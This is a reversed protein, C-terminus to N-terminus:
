EHLGRSRAVAEARRRIFHNSVTDGLRRFPHRVPPAFSEVAVVEHVLRYQRGGATPSQATGHTPTSTTGTARDPPPSTGVAPRPPTPDIRSTSSVVGTPRDTAGLDPGEAQRDTRRVGQRYRAHGTRHRAGALRDGLRRGGLRNRWGRRERARQGLVRGVAAAALATGWAGYRLGRDITLLHAGQSGTPGQWPAGGGGLRANTLNDTIRGTGAETGSLLRRRAMAMVLVVLIVLLFREVLSVDATAALLRTLGLMTLSLLLSMGIAVVIMQVLTTLWLWALRRGGAPLVAVLGVFPALAFLLLAVFKGIIVTLGVALLVFSVVFSAGMSLLAGMFRHGGPTENFDAEAHCGADRMVERPFDDDGHPGFALVVNRAQECRGDLPGGWNLHDYTEEVFVGHVQAQLAEVEPAVAGDAPDRGQGIAFLAEEAEDILEWTTAMYDARNLMLASSLGLLVISVVLEGGAMALKGRLAVFGVWAFLGLWAIEMLRFAPHEVVRRRYDEAVDLAFQDYGSIRFDYAWGISWLSVQMAAKGINFTVATSIGFIKRGLDTMGGGDYGIDFHSSPFLGWCGHPLVSPPLEDRSEPSCISMLTDGRRWAGAVYCFTRRPEITETGGNYRYFDDRSQYWGLDGPYGFRGLREPLDDLDWGLHAERIVVCTGSEPPQTRFDDTLLDMVPYDDVRYWVERDEHLCYTTLDEPGMSTAAPFAAGPAEPAEVLDKWDTDGLERPHRTTRMPSDLVPPGITVCERSWETYSGDPYDDVRAERVWTPGNRCYTETRETGLGGNTGDVLGFTDIRELPAIREPPPSGGHEDPDYLLVICTQEADYPFGDATKRWEGDTYCYSTLFRPDVIIAHENGYNGPHDPPTIAEPAVYVWRLIEVCDGDEQAPAAAATDAPWAGPVAAALVVVVVGRVVVRRWGTM